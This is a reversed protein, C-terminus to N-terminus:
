GAEDAASAADSDSAGQRQSTRPNLDPAAGNSSSPAFRQPAPARPRFDQAAQSWLQYRFRPQYGATQESMDDLPAPQESLDV